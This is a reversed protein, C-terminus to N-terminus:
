SSLSARRVTEGLWVAWSAPSAGAAIFLDCEGSLARRMGVAHDSIRVKLVERPLYIYVYHSRGAANCSRSVSIRVGPMANCVSAKFLRVTRDVARV